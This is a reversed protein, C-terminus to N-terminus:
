NYRDCFERVTRNVSQSFYILMELFTKIADKITRSAFRDPVYIAKVILQDLRDTIIWRLGWRSEDLTPLTFREFSIGGGTHELDYQRYEFTVPERTIAIGRELRVLANCEQNETARAVCGQTLSLLEHLSLHPDLRVGLMHFEAFWGILNTTQPHTRNAFFAGVGIQQKGTLHRLLLYYTSLLVIYLSVGHIRAVAQLALRGNINLLATESAATSGPRRKPRCFHFDEIGLISYSESQSRWYKLLKNLHAGQLRQRTWAAWDLYQVPLSPLVPSRGSMLAGYSLCLEKHIVSLSVGDCVLHSFALVLFHRNSAYRVLVARLFPPASYDFKTQRITRVLKDLELESFRDEFIFYEL